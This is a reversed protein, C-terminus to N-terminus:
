SGGAKSGVPALKWSEVKVAFRVYTEPEEAKLRTANVRWSEVSMLRLPRALATSALEIRTEGPRLMRALEYKIGDEIAGLAERAKDAEAKASDRQQTLADLRSGPMPTITRILPEARKQDEPLATTSGAEVPTTALAATLRCLWGAGNVREIETEAQPNSALWELTAGVGDRWEAPLPGQAAIRLADRVIRGAEIEPTSFGGQVAVAHLAAAVPHLPPGSM